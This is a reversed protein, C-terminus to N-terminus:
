RRDNATVFLGQTRAMNEADWFPWLRLIAPSCCKPTGPSESGKLPQQRGGLLSHVPWSNFWRPNLYSETCERCRVSGKWLCKPLYTKKENPYTNTEQLTSRPTKALCALGFFSMFKPIFKVGLVLWLQRFFHYTQGPRSPEWPTFPRISRACTLAHQHM